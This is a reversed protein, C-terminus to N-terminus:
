TSDRIGGKLEIKQLILQIINLKAVSSPCNGVVNDRNSYTSSLEPLVPSKENGKLAVFQKQKRNPTGFSVPKTFIRNFATM